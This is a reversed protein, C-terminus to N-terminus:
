NKNDQVLLDISSFENNVYNSAKQESVFNNPFQHCRKDQWISLVLFRSVFVLSAILLKIVYHSEPLYSQSLILSFIYDIAKLYLMSVHIYLFTVSEYRPSNFLM